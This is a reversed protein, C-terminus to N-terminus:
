IQEEVIKSLRRVDSVDIDQEEALERFQDDEHIRNQTDALQEWDIEASDDVFRFDISLRRDQEVVVYITALAVKELARQSGFKTYDLEDVIRLVESQQYDTLELRNCLAQTIRIKDQRSQHQSFNDAMRGDHHRQLRDLDEDREEALGVTTETNANPKFTHEHANMDQEVTEPSECVDLGPPSGDLAFAPPDPHRERDGGAERDGSGGREETAEEMEAVIRAAEVEIADDEPM